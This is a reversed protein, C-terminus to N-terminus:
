WDPSPARCRRTLAEDFKEPVGHAECARQAGAILHQEAEAGHRRILVWAIRVDQEHSIAGSFREGALWADTLQEDTM